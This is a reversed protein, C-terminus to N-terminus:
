GPEAAGAVREDFRARAEAVEGHHRQSWEGLARGIDGISVGLETLSYEVRPPVTPYVARHVLGDRELTRLTTTLVKQTIGDLTRRLENYRIPGTKRLVGLVLLVWKDSLITLVERAPCDALYESVLGSTREANPGGSM